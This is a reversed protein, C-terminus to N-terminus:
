VWFGKLIKKGIVLYVFPSSIVRYVDILIARYRQNLKRAAEAYGFLGQVRGHKAAKLFYTKAKEYEPPMVKMYITAFGLYADPTIKLESANNLCVLASEYNGPGMKVLIAAMATYAEASPNAEAAHAYNLIANSLHDEDNDFLEFYAGRLFYGSGINEPIESQILIETQKILEDFEKDRYAKRALELTKDINM